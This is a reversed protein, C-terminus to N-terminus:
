GSYNFNGASQLYQKKKRKFYFVGHINKMAYNTNPAIITSDIICPIILPVGLDGV